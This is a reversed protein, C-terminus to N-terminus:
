VWTQTYYLYAKDGHRDPEDMDYLSLWWADRWFYMTEM